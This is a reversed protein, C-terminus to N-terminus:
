LIRKHTLVHTQKRLTASKFRRRIVPGPACDNCLCNLTPQYSTHSKPWRFRLITVGVWLANPLRLFFSHCAVFPNAPARSRTPKRGPPFHAGSIGPLSRSSVRASLSKSPPIHYTARPPPHLSSSSIIFSSNLILFGSPCHAHLVPNTPTPVPGDGFPRACVPCSGPAVPTLPSTPLAGPDRNRNDAPVAPLIACRASGIRRSSVM